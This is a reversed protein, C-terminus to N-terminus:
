DIDAVDEPPPESMGSMDPMGMGSMDPMGMGSMDPMGGSMGGAAKSIIPNYLDELEKRKNDYGEKEANYNACSLNLCFM